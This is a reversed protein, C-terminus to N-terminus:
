RLGWGRKTLGEKKEGRYDGYRCQEKKQFSYLRRVPPRDRRDRANEAAGNTIKNIPHQISLDNIKKKDV